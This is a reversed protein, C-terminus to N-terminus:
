KLLFSLLYCYGIFLQHKRKESKTFYNKIGKFIWEFVKGLVGFMNHMPVMSCAMWVCVSHMREDNNKCSNVVSEWDEGNKIKEVQKAIDDDIDKDNLIKFRKLITILDKKKPQFYAEETWDFIRVICGLM